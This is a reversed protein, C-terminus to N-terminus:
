IEDIRKALMFDKETVGGESHTSISIKVNNWSHLFIDPHHNLEEAIAGVINVFSLAGSFNKFKYDKVIMDANFLWGPFDKIRNNIEAQTLLTM